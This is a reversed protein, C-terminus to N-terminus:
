QETVPRTGGWRLDPLAREPRLPAVPSEVAHYPLAALAALTWLWAGGRDFPSLDKTLGLLITAVLAVRLALAPPSSTRRSLRWVAILFLLYAGAMFAGGNVLQRLWTNHTTHGAAGLRPDLATYAEFSNLGGGVLWHSDQDLYRVAQGWIYPRGSLTQNSRLPHSTLSTVIHETRTRGITGAYIGCLILVILVAKATQSRRDFIALALLTVPFILLSSRSATVLLVAVSFVLLAVGVGVRRISRLLIFAPVGFTSFLAAAENGQLMLGGNAKVGPTYGNPTYIGIAQAIVSLGVVFLMGALGWAVTARAEDPAVLQVVLLGALFIVLPHLILPISGLAAAASGYSRYWAVVLLGFNLAAVVAFPREEAFPFRLGQSLAIGLGLFVLIDIADLGAHVSVGLLQEVSPLPAIALVLLGFARPHTLGGVVAGIMLVVFFAASAGGVWAVQVVFATMVLNTVAVLTTGGMRIRVADLM